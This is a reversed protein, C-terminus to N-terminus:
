AALADAWRTSRFEAYSLAGEVQEDVIWAHDSGRVQRFVARHARVAQRAAPALGRASGNGMLLRALRDPSCSVAEVLAIASAGLQDRAEDLTLLVAPTTM